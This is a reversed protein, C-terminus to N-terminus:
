KDGNKSNQKNIDDKGLKSCAAPGNFFLDLADLVSSKGADNKGILVTLDDVNLIIKSSYGRFGKIEVSKNKM